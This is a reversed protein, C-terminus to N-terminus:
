VAGCGVGSSAGPPRTAGHSTVRGAPSGGAVAGGLPMVPSATLWSSKARDSRRPPSPRSRRQGHGRDFGHAQLDFSAHPAAFPEGVDLVDDVSGVQRGILFRCEPQQAPAVHMRSRLPPLRVGVERAQGGGRGWWPCQVGTPVEADGPLPRRTGAGCGAVDGVAAGLGGHGGDRPRGAFRDPRRCGPRSSRLVAVHHWAPRERAEPWCGPRVGAVCRARVSPSM